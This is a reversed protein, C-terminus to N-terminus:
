YMKLIISKLTNSGETNLMHFIENPLSYNSGYSHTGTRFLVAQERLPTGQEYHKLILDIVEDDQTREDHCTILQPYAGCEHDSWLEKPYSSDAQSILQNTTRLINKTSRYNQELTIVKAMPFQAPFEMINNVTAGRFAYISQQDDGVVTINNCSLRMRKLIYAQAYNTDQYEDVLIYDFEGSLLMANHDDKLLMSWYKLLDDYDLLDQTLKRYRYEKFIAILDEEWRQCWPFHQQLFEKFDMRMNIWRSYINNVTSKKPFRSEKSSAGFDYRIMNMLDASDGQDLITFSTSIGLTESYLRLLRNAISHFTGAWMQSLDNRKDLLMLSVRRIMEDAARRTFTLLM